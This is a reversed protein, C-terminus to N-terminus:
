WQRMAPDAVLGTEEALERVAAAAFDEPGRTKGGPLELMGRRSRGLLVRVADNTVVGLAGTLAHATTPRKEVAQTDTHCPGRLILFALGDADLREM